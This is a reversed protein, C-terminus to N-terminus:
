CQGTHDGDETTGLRVVGIYKGVLSGVPELYKHVVTPASVFQVWTASKWHGM